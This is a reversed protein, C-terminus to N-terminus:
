VHLVLSNLTRFRVAAYYRDKSSDVLNQKCAIL